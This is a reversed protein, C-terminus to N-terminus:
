SAFVSRRVKIRSTTQAETTFFFLRVRAASTKQPSRQRATAANKMLRTLRCRLHGVASSVLKVLWASNWNREFGIVNEM